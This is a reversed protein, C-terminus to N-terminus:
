IAQKSNKEHYCTGSSAQEDVLSIPKHQVLSLYCGWFTSVVCSALVRYPIPVIWFNLTNVPVWLSASNICTTVYEEEVKRQTKEYAGEFSGKELIMETYTSFTFFIMTIFPNMAFNGVIGRKLSNVFGGKQMNRDIWGYLITCYPSFCIGSYSAMVLTRKPNISGNSSELKAKEISQAIVDGVGMIICGSVTNTLIPRRALMNSYSRLLNNM